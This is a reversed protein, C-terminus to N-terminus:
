LGWSKRTHAEEAANKVKKFKASKGKVHAQCEPWTLHRVLNGNILSIYAPYSMGSLGATDVHAAGALLDTITIPYNALPGNYEPIPSQQSQAVSLEDVRENGPLGSHGPIQTMQLPPLSKKLEWVAQWLDLNSIPTGDAKTFGRKAWGFLWQNFGNVVYSSDWFFKVSTEQPYKAKIDRLAELLAGLEMRNNTTAAAFGSREWVTQTPGHAMLYAWGGPGPNGSCAGDGYVVLNAM